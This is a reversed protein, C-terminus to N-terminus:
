RASGANQRPYVRGKWAGGRGRWARWASGITMAMFVAAAFPLLLAAPWAQRYLRVTPLYALCMLAYAALGAMAVAPGFALLGIMAAVPVAYVLIMGAICLVLGLPSHGLQTYASRAVMNWIGGIGAYPRLSRTKTTLGLWLKGGSRAISRALACDDILAGRIAGLGGAAALVSRRVLMCGGAAAATKAMPDNVWAFPYLMQFFFVFPPILFRDWFGDVSLLVMQSALDLRGAEARAVLRRLSSRGHDIDADCFLVYQADPILVDGLDVGQSMAWVKGVWGAPLARGDVVILRDPASVAASRAMAATADSSNDDVLIIPFADPYDQALLSGVSRRVVDAENRAAIVALVPPWSCPEQIAGDRLRQDARWFGGRLFVLYIWAACSLGALIM